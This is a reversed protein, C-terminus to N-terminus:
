VNGYLDREKLSLRNVSETLYSRAKIIRQQMLFVKKPFLYPYLYFFSRVLFILLKTSRTIPALNSRSDTSFFLTNEDTKSFKEDFDMPIDLEKAEKTYRYIIKIRNDYLFIKSIFIELLKVGYQENQVVKNKLLELWYAIQEYSILPQKISARTIENELQVKREELDLLRQKTSPTIIGTEIAAVLNNIAKQTDKLQQELGKLPSNERERLQLDVAAKAITDIVDDQLVNKITLDLLLEELEFKRAPKKDCQRTKKQTRCKYYYYTRGSKGTGSEGVMADGCHGCFLKGTLLFDVNGKSAAPSRSNKRLREQAHQFLDMSIIAPISNEIRIEGYIYTGTYRENKLISYLSNKTFPTGNKTRYGKENLIKVIDKYSIGSTYLEFIEKVVAAGIPEIMYKKSSDSQYGLPLSNAIKGQRANDILGRKVNQALNASYYEASGELISELLIGEPGDPITEKAYLLKVGHSKLRVKYTAADYRNRAFRDVKWCIVAQFHGKASDKIMRQFEPRKDSTGSLHRDAYEGVIQIDNDRAFRRCDAFQQEISADNQSHSSYRGYLVAKLM